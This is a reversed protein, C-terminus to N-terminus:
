RCLYKNLKAEPVVYRNETVMEAGMECWHFQHVAGVLKYVLLLLIM